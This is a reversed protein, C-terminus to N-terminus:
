ALTMLDLKHKKTGKYRLFYGRRFRVFSSKVEATSTCYDLAEQCLPLAVMENADYVFGGHITVAHSCNGDSALLVGVLIHREDLLHKQWDFCKPIREIVIWKPLINRARLMVCDLADVVAGKLIEEGFFDIEAAEKEFGLSHLASALSKSVCLDKGDKQTFCLTPAGPVELHPHLHLHSHKFDGVPVDVFGRKSRKLENAFADGFNKRVFNEDLVTEKGNNMRGVWKENINITKRPLPEDDEEKDLITGKFTKGTKKKYALRIARARSSRRNQKERLHKAVADSDIVSRQRPGTYRVRVIKQKGIWVEIDRPAQIWNDDLRMNIIHQVDEDNFEDRVWAEDVQMEEEREIFTDKNDPDVDYFVLRAKFTNSTSIYKLGKVMSRRTFMFEKTLKKKFTAREDKLAKILIRIWEQEKESNDPNHLKEAWTSILNEHKEESDWGWDEFSDSIFQQLECEYNADRKVMPEEEEPITRYKDQFSKITKLSQTCIKKRLSAEYEAEMAVRKEEEEIQKQRVARARKKQNETLSEFVENDDSDLRLRKIWDDKVESPRKPIRLCIPDFSKLHRVTVKNPEDAATADHPPLVASTEDIARYADQKEGLDNTVDITAYIDHDEDQDEGMVNDGLENPVENAANVDENEATVVDGLVNQVAIATHVAVNEDMHNANEQSQTVLSCRAQSTVASIVGFAQKQVESKFHFALDNSAGDVNSSNTDQFEQDEDTDQLLFDSENNTDSGQVHASPTTVDIAIEEHGARTIKTPTTLDVVSGVMMFPHNTPPAQEAQRLVFAAKEKTEKSSIIRKKGRPWSLLDLTSAFAIDPENQKDLMYPGGVFQFEAMRDFLIFWQERVSFLYDTERKKKAGNADEHGPLKNMISVPMHCFFEGSNECCFIPMNARSFLDDFLFDENRPIFERFLIGITACVGVGCNYGDKQLPFYGDETVRLAPFFDTGLMDGETNSGFPEIFSIQQSGLNSKMHMEYSACLNLFWIVGQDLAVKRTGDNRLSCYRFFCPRLVTGTISSSDSQEKSEFISDANFVFTASWHFGGECFPFVIIRRELLGPNRSVVKVLLNSMHNNYKSLANAVEHGLKERVVKDVEESSRIGDDLVAQLTAAQRLLKKYAVYSGFAISIGECMSFPVEFVSDEYRGDLMLTAVMLDMESSSM